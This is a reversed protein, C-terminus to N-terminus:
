TDTGKDSRIKMPEFNLLTFENDIDDYRVKVPMGINIQKPDCRLLRGAVRPGEELEVLAIVFPVDRALRPDVPHHVVTWTYVTGKGSIATWEGGLAGCYYCSASPPFRFRACKNCKQLKAQHERLSQWYLESDHEIEPRIISKQEM